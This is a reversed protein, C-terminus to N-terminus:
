KDRSMHANYMLFRCTMNMINRITSANFLKFYKGSHTTNSEADAFETRSKKLPQQGSSVSSEEEHSSSMDM